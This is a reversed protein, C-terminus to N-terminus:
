RGAEKKNTEIRFLEIIPGQASRDPGWVRVPTVGPASRLGM